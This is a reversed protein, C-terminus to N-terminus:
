RTQRSGNNWDPITTESSKGEQCRLWPMGEKAAKSEAINGQVDVPGEGYVNSFRLM